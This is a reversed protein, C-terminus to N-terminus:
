AACTQDLGLAERWWAAFARAPLPRSLLYGQIEDCGHDQLFQRQARTEVGEAVVRLGLTRALAIVATSIAADEPDEPLGQVFDRDVKLTDVPLRKLYSLSSYGTGFDDIAIRVGAKALRDLTHRHAEGDMLMSETIELELLTPRVGSRELAETVSAALNADRFQRVSLNVAMSLDDPLGDDHWARLQDLATQLVWKGVPVILGTEELVGIFEDPSVVTGDSRRWRLLAEVGTVTNTALDARPQYFLEFEGRELAHRLGSELQLRRAAETNLEDNYFQYGNRGQEKARYMAMDAHQILEDLPSADSPFLTIGISTSVVIEQGAGSFPARLATLIRQAVVAAQQANDIDEVIVTFEDGGLRSITSTADASDLRVVEDTERLCERLSDAVHKLLLDGVHHGLSDNITKFRDLDLFMLGVQRGQRQARAMAQQLRDRFLSRNPLGTLSDFKALRTMHQEALRRESIDRVLCFFQTEEAETLMHVSIEVPTRAGSGDPATQLEAEWKGLPLATARTPAAPPLAIWRLMPEGVIAAPAMGFLRGAEPNCSRVLGQADFVLMGDAAQQFLVDLQRELMRRSKEQEQRLAALTGRLVRMPWIRLSFYIALGLTGAVAAVIGTDFLLPRVSRRLVVQGILGDRGALPAHAEIAPWAVPDPSETVVRGETDRVERHESLQKDPDRLPTDVLGNVDKRWDGTSTAAAQTVFTAYLRASLEADVRQFNWSLGIYAAPGLVGVVIAITAAVWTIVRAMRHADGHSRVAKSASIAPTALEPLM